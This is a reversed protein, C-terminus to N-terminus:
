MMPYFNMLTDVGNENDDTVTIKQGKQVPFWDYGRDWGDGASGGITAGNLKVKYHWTNHTATVMIWGDETATYGNNTLTVTRGAALNPFRVGGNLKQDNYYIDGNLFLRLYKSQKGDNAVLWMEGPYTPHEKGFAQVYAGSNSDTGGGFINWSNNVHFYTSGQIQGGTIPYFHSLRTNVWKTNAAYTGNANEPVGNSNVNLMGSELNIMFPRATGYGGEADGKETIMLYLNAGDQRWFTSFDKFKIRFNQIAGINADGDSVIEGTVNGGTINLKKNFLNKHADINSNHATISQAAATQAAEGAAAAAANASIQAAAANQAAQEASQAAANKNALTQAIYSYSEAAANGAQEAQTKAETAAALAEARKQDAVGVAAQVAALNDRTAIDIEGAIGQVEDRASEVARVAAQVAGEAGTTESLLALLEASRDQTVSNLVNVNADKSEEIQGVAYNLAAQAAEGVSERGAAAAAEVSGAAEFAQKLAELAVLASDPDGTIESWIIQVTLAAATASANSNAASEAATLSINKANIIMDFIADPDIGSTLDAKICRNLEERLEQILMTLKDLGLELGASPLKGHEPLSLEQTEDCRRAIVLVKGLTFSRNLRVTGGESYDDQQLVVFDRNLELEVDNGSEEIYCHIDEPKLFRIPFAYDRETGIEYAVKNRTSEIM